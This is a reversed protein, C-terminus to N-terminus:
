NERKHGGGELGGREEEGVGEERHQMGMASGNTSIVSQHLGKLAKGM